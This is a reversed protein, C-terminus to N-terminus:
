QAAAKRDKVALLLKQLSETSMAEVKKAISEKNVIGSKSNSSSPGSSANLFTLGKFTTTFFLHAVVATGVWVVLAIAIKIYLM